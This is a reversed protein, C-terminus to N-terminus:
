LKVEKASTHEDLTTLQIFPCVPIAPDWGNYAIILRHVSFLIDRWPKQLAQAITFLERKDSGSNNSQSKGPVSGVLNSHVRMTFCIMNIAEQLDSQWDGGEKSEDIRNIVVDHQEKGDPSVYFASFLVKGANEAGTIFDIIRAKEEDIRDLKLARDTIGESLFLRDWFKDSIEIHYKIPASNRLKSEKAVGILQKINYWKGRILSAYYPIPYYSFDSAPMRHVVAYKRRSSSLTREHLAVLTDRAPLLPICEISEPISQLRWNAYYVYPIAGHRDAEAFRCYCAERRSVSEITQLDHSLTIVSVAFAFMKIDNCIGLFYSQMDSRDFFAKIARTQKKSLSEAKYEIGSGYLVETNFLACTAMTEDREFIDMINFPMINDVGWPIYSHGKVIEVPTIEDQERFVLSFDRVFAVAGRADPLLSVSCPPYLSIDSSSRSPSPNIQAM